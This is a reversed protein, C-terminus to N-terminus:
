PSAAVPKADPGIYRDLFEALKDYLAAVNEPKAFGHGEGAVVMTEAPHGTARLAAEMAKFQGFEATQDDKGHVLMVPIKIEGARLAPSYDALVKPDTGIARDNVRISRKSGGDHVDKRLMVMDYVGVYGVACKYMGPNLIPQMMASYGGFSAGYICIRDADALKNDIAWKVGDTIDNQITGGWQKWGAREFAEGRGGSGRYNVQLVAYGRSALFQADRDFTWYDYPGIPGGHPMVVLPKPGNGKATYFGFLKQGDRTTFEIPRTPALTDPKLWPRYDVLKQAKKQVRD